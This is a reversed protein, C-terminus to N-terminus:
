GPPSGHPVSNRKVFAADLSDGIQPFLVVLKASPQSYSNLHAAFTAGGSNACLGARAARDRDICSRVLERPSLGAATFSIALLGHADAYRQWLFLGPSPSFLQTGYFKKRGDWGRV